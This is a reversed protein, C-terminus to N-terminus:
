SLKKHIAALGILPLKRIRLLPKKVYFYEILKNYCEGNPKDNNKRIQLLETVYLIKDDGLM